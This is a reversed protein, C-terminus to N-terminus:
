SLNLIAMASAALVPHLQQIVFIIMLILSFAAEGPARLREDAAAPMVTPTLMQTGTGCAPLTSTCLPAKVLSAMFLSIVLCPTSGIVLIVEPGKSVELAEL